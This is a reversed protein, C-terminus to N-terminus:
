KGITSSDFTNEGHILQINAQHKTEKTLAKLLSVETNTILMEKILVQLPKLGQGRKV